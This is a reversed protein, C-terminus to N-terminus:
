SKGGKAAQYATLQKRAETMPMMHEAKLPFNEGECMLLLGRTAGALKEAIDNQVCEPVSDNMHQVAQEPTWTGKAVTKFLNLWQETTYQKPSTAATIITEHELGCIRGDEWLGNVLYIADRVRDDIPKGGGAFADGTQAITDLIKIAEVVKNYSTVGIGEFLTDDLAERVKALQDKMTM